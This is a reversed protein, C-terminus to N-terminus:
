RNGWNDDFWVRPVGVEAAARSLTEQVGYFKDQTDIRKIRDFPLSVGLEKLRGIIIGDLPVHLFYSLREAEAESFYRSSLVLDRVFIAMIKTAHGWKVGPRIRSNNPNLRIIVRAIRGVRANFWDSFHEQIALTPLVDIDIKSLEPLLADRTGKAYVRMVSPGLVVRAATKKIAERHNKKIEKFEKLLTM